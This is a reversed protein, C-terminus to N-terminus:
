SCMVCQRLRGTVCVCVCVCVCVGCVCVCVSVCVDWIDVRVSLTVENLQSRVLGLYARRVVVCISGSIWVCMCYSVRVREIYGMWVCSCYM